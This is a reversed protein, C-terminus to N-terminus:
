EQEILSCWNFDPYSFLGKEGIKIEPIVVLSLFSLTMFPAHMRCGMEQVRNCLYKYSSAVSEGSQDSMIGGIPLPLLDTKDVDCVALGGKHEIIANVVAQLERDSCGVAIINHSDHAV